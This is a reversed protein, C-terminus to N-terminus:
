EGRLVRDAAAELDDLQNKTGGNNNTQQKDYKDTVLGQWGGAICDEIIKIAIPEKYHSLKKLSAQLATPEKSKWKKTKALINWHTMFEESTYPFVLEEGDKKVKVKVGEKVEGEVGVIVVPTNFVRNIPYPYPINHSKLLSLIKIHIPSKEGLIGNQFQIFDVCFIKGSELKIFQKGNDISLLEHENVKEGIYVEALTWNPNWVGALDCKDRVFKVLCKLRPKLKMFWEKDWIDTDTLRKGM